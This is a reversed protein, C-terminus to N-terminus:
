TGTFFTRIICPYICYNYKFLLLLLLSFFNYGMLFFINNIEVMKTVLINLSIQLRQDGMYNFFMYLLVM